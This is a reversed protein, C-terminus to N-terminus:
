VLHLRLSGREPKSYFGTPRGCHKKLAWSTRRLQAINPLDVQGVWPKGFRSLRIVGRHSFQFRIRPFYILAHMDHSANRSFRNRCKECIMPLVTVVDPASSKHHSALNIRSQDCIRVNSRVSRFAL